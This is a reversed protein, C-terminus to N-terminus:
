RDDSHGNEKRIQKRLEDLGVEKEKGYMKIVEQTKRLFEEIKRNEQILEPMNPIIELDLMQIGGDPLKINILDICDEFVINGIRTIGDSIEINTLSICRELAGDRIEIVRDPIKIDVVNDLNWFAAGEIIKVNEPINLKGWEVDDEEVKVLVGDEVIM